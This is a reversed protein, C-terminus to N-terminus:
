IAFDRKRKLAVGLGVNMLILLFSILGWEGMTPVPTPCRGCLNGQILAFGGFGNNNDFNANYGENAHHYFEIQYVGPSIQPVNVPLTLPNGTADYVQGSNLTVMDWTDGPPGTITVVEHMLLDGHEPGSPGNYVLVNQPDDCSCPDTIDPIGDGDTDTNSVEVVPDIFTQFNYDVGGGLMTPLGWNSTVSNRRYAAGGAYPTTTTLGINQTTSPTHLVYALRDGVNVNIGLCSVDFSPWFSPNPSTTVPISSVPLTVFGLSTTNSPHGLLDLSVIEILIPMDRRTTTGTSQGINVKVESLTGRVGCTFSQALENDSINGLPNLIIPLPPSWTYRGFHQPLVGGGSSSNQDLFALDLPCPPLCALVASFANVRGYGLDNSWTGSPKGFIPFSYTYGGVKDCTSELCTRAQAQTLAPNASLMLGVVGATYPCSSSTGNMTNTYNTNGPANGTGVIDTTWCKVGPAAVDTFQGFCSGWWTEGDCSVGLPDTSVGPNVQAASSSSRKRTDCMSSAIISIANPHSMPYNAAQDNENGASALFVCGLGGRYAAGAGTVTTVANNIDAPGLGGGGWSNSLVDANQGAWLIANTVSTSNWFWSTGVTYAIRVPVIRCNYAVGAVGIANNGDAAAQGACKTGHGDTVLGGNVGNVQPSGAAGKRPATPHADYGANMNNVLDPHVLDVGEDLIAIRIASSGGATIDWADFVRLDQGAGGGWTMTNGGVGSGTNELPWQNGLFPDNTTAMKGPMQGLFECSAYVYKDTAYLQNALDLANFQSGKKLDFHYISKDFENQVPNVLDLPELEARLINIDGGPRLKINVQNMIGYLTEDDVKLFRNTYEVGPVKALQDLIDLLESESRIGKLYAITMRPSPLELLEGLDINEAFQNLRSQQDNLSIGRDFKILIQTYVPQLTEQGFGTEHYFTEQAFVGLSFM